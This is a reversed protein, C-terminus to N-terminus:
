EDLASHGRAVHISTAPTTLDAFTERIGGLGLENPDVFLCEAWVSPKVYWAGHPNEESEALAVETLDTPGSTSIAQAM